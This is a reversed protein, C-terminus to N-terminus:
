ITIIVLLVFKRINFERHLSKYRNMYIYIFNMKKEINSKITDMMTKAKM